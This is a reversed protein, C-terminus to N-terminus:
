RREFTLSVIVQRPLGPEFAVPVGNVIDPNLFASGIFRRDTLNNVILSGRVGIGNGIDYARDTTVGASFVTAGPVRVSNADDVWYSGTNQLGGRLRIGSLQAPAYSIAANFTLDPVGVVRNNSYNAFHGAKSKDYHVSDVLYDQYRANMMTLAGQLQWGERTRLMSGVELGTRQAKAATFYFRGGRYPVIENTVNTRFAAVDYSLEAISGTGAFIVRRTGIEYTISRIPELLPNIAYVADQGFTSAPDTENGAPVEVGGGISVYINSTEGLRYSAGVKPTLGTFSKTMNLAPTINSSYTYTIADYRAGLTLSWRDGLSIDDNVFFGVNNAGERKNDRLDTGRTGQPTLGYFLIAGDQYAVDSGISLTGRVRDAYDGSIRYVGNGGLHYRNFDRYTGRESRQLYKPTVFTMVSFGQDADIAHDLILGLRGITNDRREFRSRYTANAQSPNADIQAQTLPGPVNFRNLSAMLLASFTTRDGLPAVLGGDVVTRSGMSNERWGDFTSNVATGFLRSAGFLTGGKISFRKLGFGGITSAQEAFPRDFSPITNVNIVGGAANGWLASANSRVVEIGEATALDFADLSTRGDPETEPIGNLLIRIGRSTGSNSRDGAGRAGYGRISLRVDGSGNRSQALVGPVLSLADDIGYGSKGQWALKEIKTVALTTSYLSLGSRTATVTVGALKTAASDTSQQAGATHADGAVFATILVAMCIASPRM